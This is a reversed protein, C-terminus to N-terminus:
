RFNPLRICAFSSTRDPKVTASASTGSATAKAIIAPTVGMMPNYAAKIMQRIVAISPPLGPIIEPAVPASATIM